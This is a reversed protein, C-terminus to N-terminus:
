RLALRNKLQETLSSRKNATLVIRTHYRGQEMILKLCEDFSSPRVSNIDVIFLCDANYHEKVQKLDSVTISLGKKTMLGRNKLMDVILEKLTEKRLFRNLPYTIVVNKVEEKQYLHHIRDVIYYLEDVYHEFPIFQINKPFCTQNKGEEKKREEESSSNDLNVHGIKIIPYIVQKIIHAEEQSLSNITFLKGMMKNIRENLIHSNELDEICLIQDSPIVQDIGLHTIDHRTLDSFVCGTIVPFKLRGQFNGKWELLEEHQSLLNMLENRYEIAQSLPNKISIERGDNYIKWYDKRIERITRPVYDKVEMILIGYYEHFLVFDPYKGNIVPEYYVTWLDDLNEKLTNFLKEEGSTKFVPREPIVYAM